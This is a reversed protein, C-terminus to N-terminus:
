HFFLVLNKNQLMALATLFNVKAKAKPKIPGPLRTCNQTEDSGDFCDDEGDCIWNAPICRGDDICGFEYLECAYHFPVFFYVFTLSITLLSSIKQLM